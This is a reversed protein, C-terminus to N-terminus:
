LPERHAELPSLSVHLDSGLARVLSDIEQATLPTHRGIAARTEELLHQRASVLWRAATARHVEYLKGLADISLDDLYHQRLLTRERRELTAMAERMAQSFVSRYRARLLQLEVDGSVPITSDVEEPNVNPKQERLYDVAARSAVVRVWGRLSGRAGFNRLAESSLLRLRIFQHVDDRQGPPAQRNLVAEVENRCWAELAVYASPIANVCATALFLEALAEDSLEDAPEALTELAELGLRVEPFVRRGAEHVKEFFRQSM